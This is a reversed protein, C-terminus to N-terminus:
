LKVTKREDLNVNFTVGAIKVKVYGKYNLEFSQKTIISLLKGLGGNEYLKKLPFNFSLPVTFHNNKPIIVETYREFDGLQISNIEVAVNVESLTAGVKNPNFFIADVKITIDENEGYSANFNELREFSPEEYIANCANLMLLILSWLLKNKLFM